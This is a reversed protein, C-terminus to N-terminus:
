SYVKYFKCNIEFTPSAISADGVYLDLKSKRSQITSVCTNRRLMSYNIINM